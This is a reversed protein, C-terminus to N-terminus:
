IPKSQQRWPSFFSFTLYQSINATKCHYGYLRRRQLQVFFSLIYYFPGGVKLFKLVSQNETHTYTYFTLFCPVVIIIELCCGHKWYTIALSIFLFSNEPNKGRRVIDPIGIYYEQTDTTKGLCSKKQRKQTYSPVDFELAKNKCVM